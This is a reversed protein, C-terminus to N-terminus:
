GRTDRRPRKGPQFPQTGTRAGPSPVPRKPQLARPLQARRRSPAAPLGSPLWMLPPKPALSRRPPQKRACPGPPVSAGRTPQLIDEGDQRRSLPACLGRDTHELSRATPHETKHLAETSSTGLAGSYSEFSSSEDRERKVLFSVVASAAM